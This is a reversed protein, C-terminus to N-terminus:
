LRTVRYAIIGWPTRRAISGSKETNFSASTRASSTRACLASQVKVVGIQMAPMMTNGMAIGIQSPPATPPGAVGMAIM